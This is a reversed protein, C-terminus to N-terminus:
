RSSQSSSSSSSSSSRERYIGEAAQVVWQRLLPRWTSWQSDGAVELLELSVGEREAIEATLQQGSIVDEPDDAAHAMWLDVSQAEKSGALVYPSSWAFIDNAGRGSGLIQEAEQPEGVDVPGSVNGSWGFTEPNRVATIQACYGGMQVGGIASLQGTVDLRGQRAAWGVVDEALYAQWRGLISDICQTQEGVPSVAPVVLAVPMGNRAAQLAAAAVDGEDFMVRVPEAASTASESPAQPALFITPVPEAATFYQPPLYIRGPMPGVGSVGEPITIDAVVGRPWRTRSSRLVQEEALDYRTMGLVSGVSATTGSALGLAGALGVLAAVAATPILVIWWLRQHVRFIFFITIGAIVAGAILWVPSSLPVESVARILMESRSLEGVPQPSGEGVLGPAATVLAPPM